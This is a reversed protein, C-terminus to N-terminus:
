IKRYVQSCVWVGQLKFRLSDTDDSAIRAHVSGASAMGWAPFPFSIKLSKNGDLSVHYWDDILWIFWAYILHILHFKHCKRIKRWHKLVKAIDWFNSSENGKSSAAVACAWHPWDLSNRKWFKWGSIEWTGIPCDFLMDELFPQPAFAHHHISTKSTWPLSPEHRSNRLQSTDSETSSWILQTM